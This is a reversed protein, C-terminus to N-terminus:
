ILDILIQQLQKSPQNSEYMQGWVDDV